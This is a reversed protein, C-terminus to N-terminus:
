FEVVTISLEEIVLLEPTEPVRKAEPMESSTVFLTKASFSFPDAPPAIKRVLTSASIDLLKITSLTASNLPPPMKRRLLSALSPDSVTTFLVIEPLEALMEPPPKKPEPVKTLVVIVPLEAPEDPPPISGPKVKGMLVSGGKREKSFEITSPLEAVFELSM